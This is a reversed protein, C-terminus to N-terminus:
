GPSLGRWTCKPASAGSILLEEPQVSVGQGTWWGTGTQQWARARGARAQGPGPACRGQRARTPPGRGGTTPRAARPSLAASIALRGHGSRPASAHQSRAAPFSAASAAGPPVAVWALGAACTVTFIARQLTRAVTM